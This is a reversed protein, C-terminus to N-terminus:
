DTVEFIQVFPDETPPADSPAEPDTVGIAWTGETLDVTLYRDQEADFIFTFFDLPARSPDPPPGEESEAFYAQVDEVTKGEKVKLLQIERSASSDNVVKITQRGAEVEDPGEVGEDDATYTLDADPEEGGDGEDVTFTGVMGLSFHPTGEENPVFCILAYEGAEVNAGTIAFNTGPFQASGLDDIPSDGEAIEGFASEDQQELAAKVDDLTKGPKLKAMAVEHIAHGVNRIDLTVIGATVEGEVAFSHDDERITLTNGSTDGGGDDGCGTVTLALVVAVVLGGAPRIRM